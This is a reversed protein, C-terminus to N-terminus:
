FILLLLCDQALPSLISTSNGLQFDINFDGLIAIAFYQQSFPLVKELVIQFHDFFQASSNPPRYLCGMLVKGHKTCVEIM